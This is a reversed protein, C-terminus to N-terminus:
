FIRWKFFYMTGGFNRMKKKEKYVYHLTSFLSWTIVLNLSCRYDLFDLCSKQGLGHTFCFSHWGVHCVVLSGKHVLSRLYVSIFYCYIVNSLINWLLQYAVWWAKSGTGTCLNLGSSKQKEWPGDDVSIEYYSARHILFIFNSKSFKHSVTFLSFM